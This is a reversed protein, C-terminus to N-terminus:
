TSVAQNRQIDNEMDITKKVNYVTHLSAGVVTSANKTSKYVFYNYCVKENM